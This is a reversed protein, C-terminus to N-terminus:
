QDSGRKNFTLAFSIAVGMGLVMGLVSLMHGLQIMGLAALGGGAYLMIEKM